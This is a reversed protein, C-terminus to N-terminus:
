ADQVIPPIPPQVEAQKRLDALQQIPRYNFLHTAACICVTRPMQFHRVAGAGVASGVAGAGGTGEGRPASVVRGGAGLPPAGDGSVYSSEGKKSRDPCHCYEADAGNGGSQGPLGPIGDPGVEGPSGQLYTFSAVSRM